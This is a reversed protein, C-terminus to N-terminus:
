VRRSKETRNIAVEKPAHFSLVAEKRNLETIMMIFEIPEGWKDCTKITVRGGNKFRQYFSHQRDVIYGDVEAYSSTITIGALGKLINTLQIYILAQNGYSDHVKSVVITQGPSRRLDLM